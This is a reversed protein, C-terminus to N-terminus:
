HGRIKVTNSKYHRPSNIKRANTNKKRVERNGRKQVERTPLPKRLTERGREAKVGNALGKEKRGEEAKEDFWPAYL